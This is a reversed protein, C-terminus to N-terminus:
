PRTARGGASQRQPGPACPREPCRAPSPARPASARNLTGASSAQEKIERALQQEVAQVKLQTYRDLQQASFLRGVEPPTPLAPTRLNLRERLAIVQDQWVLAARPLRGMGLLALDRHLQGTVDDGEHMQRQPRLTGM